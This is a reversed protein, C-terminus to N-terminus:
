TKFWAIAGAVIVGVYSAGTMWLNKAELRDIREDLSNINGKINTIDGSVRIQERSVAGLEQNTKDIRENNTKMYEDLRRMMDTQLTYVAILIDHDKTIIRKDTDTFQEPMLSM